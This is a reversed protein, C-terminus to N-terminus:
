KAKHVVISGGGLETVPDADDSAGLQNDYIVEGTAKDWIKIRFKDVGGGGSVQGDIATLMFGYEGDGNITGVGKFQARAGAVVLWDYSTSKFNLDAVKFQFETNGTPVNAGKQYKSVFGFTAKGTLSPDAYYAGEPSNIWGGGTVFGGDPDYIVVYQFIATDIGGDDDEVTLTLTYVGPTDYTHSGSANYGDVVGDSTTGDGWDWNATHTDPIGPDNFTASTEVATGVQIPDVPATLTEITPAVNDVIVSTEATSSLGFSDTARAVITYTSPGDFTAASFTATSGVVEFTGNNDLDWEYTILDGDPDSGLAAVDVSSGEDVHYPGGADVTPPNNSLITFDVANSTGGNPEPSVVTVSATGPTAIDSNSIAADLETASVFTTTRSSGDWYVVSSQVFNTGIVKLIFDGTNVRAQNPILQTITPLPNYITISFDKTVTQNTIDVCEVTFDYTGGDLPIGSIIGTVPDLTIGDPLTGLVLRYNNCSPPESDPPADSSVDPISIPLEYNSGANGSSPPPALSFQKTVVLQSSDQVQVTFGFTGATTPKGSIEGTAANISLGPPLVGGVISWTYPQTGGDAELIVSYPVGITGSPLPPETVIRLSAINFYKYKPTEYVGADDISWYKISHPGDGSVIFPTTYTQEVGGDVSYYTSDIAYGSTATASLTATVDGPYSGDLNPSPSLFITTSPPAHVFQLVVIVSKDSDISVDSVNFKAFPTGSPPTATFNYNSNSSPFLWATADGSADTTLTSTSRGYQVTIAGINLNSSSYYYTPSVDVLVGSVPDGMPDQVHVDVRKLPLNIDMVTNQTVSLVPQITDLIYSTINPASGLSGNVYLRYDGPAVQLTYNGSADSHTYVSVSGNSLQIVQSPVGNGVADVIRGSLTVIGAPVLIFDINKNDTIAQGLIIAAGLGSGAPPTVHIDYMGDNISISYHGSADTTASVVVSGTGPNIIDVTTGALPDGSQNTVRGSLQYTAAAALTVSLLLLLTAICLAVSIKSKTNM